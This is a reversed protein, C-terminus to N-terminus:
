SLKLKPSSAKGASWRQATRNLPLRLQMDAIAATLLLLAAVLPGPQSAALAPARRGNRTNDSVHVRKKGTVPQAPAFEVIGGVQALTLQRAPVCSSKQPPTRPPVIAGSFAASRSKFCPTTTTGPARRARSSRRPAARSPEAAAADEAAPPLVLAIASSSATACSHAASPPQGSRLNLERLPGKSSFNVM